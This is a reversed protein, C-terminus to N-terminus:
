VSAPSGDIMGPWEDDTEALFERTADTCVGPDFGNRALLSYARQRRKRPDQERGLAGRRRDLLRLAAALDASGVDHRPEAGDLDRDDAAAAAAAEDREHLAADVLEKGLGKRLLERRLAMAGRPRARDRSAVWARAFGEDDLYGLTVLRGLTGEILGSPYGLTILRTRLEHTTRSRIALLAASAAMVIDPDTIASRRERREQQRVRRDAASERM